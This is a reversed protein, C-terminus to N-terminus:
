VTILLIVTLLEAAEDDVTFTVAGDSALLEMVGELGYSIRYPWPFSM